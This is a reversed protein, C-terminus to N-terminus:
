RYFVEKFFSENKLLNPVFQALCELLDEACKHYNSFKEDTNVGGPSYYYIESETKLTDLQNVFSSYIRTNVQSAFLDKCCEKIKLIIGPESTDHSRSLPVIDALANPNKAELHDGLIHVYYILKCFSNCQAELHKNNRLFSFLGLLSPFLEKKVTNVLIARRAEWHAKEPYSIDWGRHTYYRHGRSGEVGGFADYNIESIDKIIDPIKENKLRTLKDNGRGSFQDICLYSADELAQIVTKENPHSNKYFRDGFLVYELEQNHGDNGHSYVFETLIFLLLFAVLIKRM